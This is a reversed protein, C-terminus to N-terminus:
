TRAMKEEKPCLEQSQSLEQLGQLLQTVMLHTVWAPLLWTQFGLLQRVRLRPPAPLSLASLLLSAFDKLSLFPKIYNFCLRLHPEQYHQHYSSKKPSRSLLSWRMKTIFCSHLIFPRFEGYAFYSLSPTPMDKQPLFFFFILKITLKKPHTGDKM